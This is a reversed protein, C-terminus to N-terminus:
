HSTLGPHSELVKVTCPSCYFSVFNHVNQSLAFQFGLFPATLPPQFENFLDKSYSRLQKKELPNEAEVLKQLMVELVSGIFLNLLLELSLEGDFRKLKRRSKTDTL